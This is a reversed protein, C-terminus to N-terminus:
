AQGDQRSRRLSRPVLSPAVVDCHIGLSNILRHLGYGTPGAEYCILTHAPDRLRKTFRRISTEDSGLRNQILEGDPTLTTAAVSAKSVDFGIYYWRERLPPFGTISSM